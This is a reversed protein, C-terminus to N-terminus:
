DEADYVTVPYVTVADIVEYVVVLKRGALTNGIAIPRGTTRSVGRAIPFAMVQEAEEPTVGHDALHAVNGDPGEVWIVDYHVMENDGM